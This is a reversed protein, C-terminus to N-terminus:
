SIYHWATFIDSPQGIKGDNCTHLSIENAMDKCTHSSQGLKGHRDTFASRIQWIKIHTFASRIQWAKEFRYSTNFTNIFKDIQGALAM